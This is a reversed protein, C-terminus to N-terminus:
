IYCVSVSWASVVSFVSAILISYRHTHEILALISVFVSVLLSYSHGVNCSALAVYQIHRGHILVPM